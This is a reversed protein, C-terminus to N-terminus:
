LKAAGSRVATELVAATQVQGDKSLREILVDSQPRSRLDARFDLFATSFAQQQSQFLTALFEDPKRLGIGLKTLERKRSDKTSRTM